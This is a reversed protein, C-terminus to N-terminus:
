AKSVSLSVSTTRSAKAAHPASANSRNLPMNPSAMQSESVCARVRARSWKPMLGTYTQRTGTGARVARSPQSKALSIM